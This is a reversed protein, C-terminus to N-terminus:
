AGLPDGATTLSRLEAPLQAYDDPSVLAPSVPAPGVKQLTVQGIDGPALFLQLFKIANERNPASKMITLGWATRTAQM